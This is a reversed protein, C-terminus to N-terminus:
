GPPALAAAAAARTPFVTFLDSIGALEFVRRVPGPPCVLILQRDQRGLQARARMLLNIASSDLFDVDCLDVVFAGTSTLIAADLLEEVAQANSIDLEGGLQVGPVGSLPDSMTELDNMAGVHWATNTGRRIWTPPGVDAHRRAEPPYALGTAAVKLMM